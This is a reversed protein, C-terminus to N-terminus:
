VPPGLRSGSGAPGRRLARQQRRRDRRRAPHMVDLGPDEVRLRRALEKRQKRNLGAPRAAVM